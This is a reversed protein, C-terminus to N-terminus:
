KIEPSKVGEGLLINSKEVLVEDYLGTNIFNQLTKAGGEVLISRVGIDFLKSILNDVFNNGFSIKLIEVRNKYLCHKEDTKESCVVITKKGDNFIKLNDPLILKEDLIIRLPDKGYWYRNTLSPDDLLATRYGVLIADHIMRERHVTRQYLSSSFVVPKESSNERIKDMFGDKSEAWKLTIYPRSLTNNTIFFRNLFKAEEELLGVVVEVNNKKLIDIGRGSVKHFPDQMAIVVKPIGMSIILDVCPPTKGHHSCPELSVYMVSKKLLEKNKVANIAEVEAHADGCKHHYGEGIIKNEFVIVAGVMPNPSTNGESIRALQLARKMYKDDIM